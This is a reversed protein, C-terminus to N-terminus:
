EQKWPEEVVKFEASKRKAQDEDFIVLEYDGPALSLESIDCPYVQNGRGFPLMERRVADTAGKKRLTFPIGRKVQEPPGVVTVNLKVSPQGSYVVPTTTTFETIECSLSRTLRFGGFHFDIVDKDAYNSESVVFRIRSVAAALEPRDKLIEAVPISVTIWKGPEALEPNVTFTPKTEGIELGIPKAPQKKGVFQVQAMFEFVDWASWETEWEKPTFHARPWGIPYAKEGSQHDIGFHMLLVKGGLPCQLDSAKTQCEEVPSWNIPDCMRDLWRVERTGEETTRPMAQGFVTPAVAVLTLAATVWVLGCGMISGTNKRM